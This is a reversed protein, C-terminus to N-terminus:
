SEYNLSFMDGRTLGYSDLPADKMWLYDESRISGDQAKRSITFPCVM